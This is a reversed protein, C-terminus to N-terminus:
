KAHMVEQIFEEIKAADKIGKEIEVGGSVDVAYPSVKSIADAVNVVTLGGALIIRKNLNSPVISWDFTKGTGGQTGEVFSDLLLASADFYDGSIQFLDVDDHMRVAKIYPRGYSRCEEPTEEGHFQLIDVPVSELVSRIKEESANVFLAVKTVFPPLKGAIDAAKEEKIYRPSKEYFVFGIANAGSDVASLADEIRTIGCVKVRTRKIYNKPTNELM